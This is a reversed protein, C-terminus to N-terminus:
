GNRIFPDITCKLGTRTDTFQINYIYTGNGTNSWNWHWQQKCTGAIRLNPGRSGDEKEAGFSEYPERFDKTVGPKLYVSDQGCFANPARLTWFIPVPRGGSLQLIEPNIDFTGIDCRYTTGPSISVNCQAGPPTTDCTSAMAGPRPSPPLPACALLLSGAVIALPTRLKM